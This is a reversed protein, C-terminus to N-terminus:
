RPGDPALCPKYIPATARAYSFAGWKGSLTLMGAALSVQDTGWNDWQWVISHPPVFTGKSKFLRGSPAYRCQFASGDVNVQIWVGRNPFQWLGVAGSLVSPSSSCAVSLTSLLLALFIRRM